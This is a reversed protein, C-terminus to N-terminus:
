NQYVQARQGSLTHDIIWNGVDEIKGSYSAQLLKKFDSSNMKNNKIKYM